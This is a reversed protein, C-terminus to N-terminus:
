GSGGIGSGGGQHAGLTLHEDVSHSSGAALFPRNHVKNCRPYTQLFEWDDLM